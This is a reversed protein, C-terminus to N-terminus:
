WHGLALVKHAAAHYEESLLIDPSVSAVDRPDTAAPGHVM